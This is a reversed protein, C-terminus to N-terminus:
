SRLYIMQLKIEMDITKFKTSTYIQMQIFNIEMAANELCFKNAKNIYMQITIVKPFRFHYLYYNESSSKITSPLCPYTKESNCQPNLTIQKQKKSLLKIKFSGFIHKTYSIELIYFLFIEDSFNWKLFPLLDQKCIM